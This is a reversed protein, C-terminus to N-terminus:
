LFPTAGEKLHITHEGELKGFGQFLTPYKKVIDEKTGSRFPHYESTQHIAKVSYAGTLEDRLGLTRIAPIGHLLKFAGRVVHVREKIAIEDLTLNMVACRLTVLPVVWAGILKRASKSLTGHSSKHIAASMVSVQAGKHISWTLM